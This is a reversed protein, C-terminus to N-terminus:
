LISRHWSFTPLAPSVWNIGAVGMPGLLEQDVGFHPPPTYPTM